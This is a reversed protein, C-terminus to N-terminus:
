AREVYEGTETNIRVIDGENIFLPTTVVAGTELTVPKAGGAATDGKIGPPAEIVKLEVKIPIKIDIIKDGWFIADVAQQEKLFKKSPGVIEETLFFREQPNDEEHFWYEGKRNYIYQVKATNIGAEEVKDSQHFTVEVVRGSVLNKLKTKNVPKQKQKRFVLSSLVEYPENEYIIYKKPTIENYSLM